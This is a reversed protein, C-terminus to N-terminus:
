EEVKITGAGHYSHYEADYMAEASVPGMVFSGKSVARVIYYVNVINPKNNFTPADVVMLVRDDRIDLTRPRAADKIWDLGPVASIRPNEVEFGAPLLDTLIINEIYRNTLNELEMKVVILDNQKFRNTTLRNGSRDYFYKRVKIYQDEEIYSGDVSVGETEWFYYVDGEGETQVEITVEEGRNTQYSLPAERFEKWLKGNILVEASLNGALSKQAMKGLTLLSFVREQTNLYRSEELAKSIHRAMIGIQDNNPDVELLTYLALAEDRLPSSFSGGFEKVSRPMDFQEPAIAKYTRQDGALAYAAALLYKGDETMDSSRSQYYNMTALQPKGVASLVFLSYPVSKPIINRRLVQDGKYYSFSVMEVEKLREILRQYALTLMRDPVDYGAKKAEALFHTAYVSGWWSEQGEGPWYTFGGNYLQMLKLRNIALIVNNRPNPDEQTQQLAVQTFAPFYLQPFAASVTQEVCGYNARILYSFDESFEVLPSKSLKFSQVIHQSMFNRTDLPITEKTGGSITGSGTRKQLPSAPRVTIDTTQTFTEGLASVSTAIKAQGICCETAIDYTVRSETSAAVEVSSKANGLIQLPGELSVTASGNAAKQTTNTVVVPMNLTDGPSLFRPIGSSIVIPDAVVINKETSSFANARYAIAMVRLSGSFSPIDIAFNVKGQANARQIGSWFSALKVRKNVLPNIRAGLGMGGGGPKSLPLAIEPFLYPYMDYSNVELARKAYFFDHPQPTQYNTLQLIGEDVVAIAVSANPQTNVVIEQSTKSRSESAVQIDIPLVTAADKVLMPAFGHAVTLPIDSPANPRFLVASVYVNPVMDRTVKLSFSASRGDTNVYFHDQVEDSEITVLIKGDFPAKMLVQAKDGIDYIDKDLTIDIQGENNVKFANRSTGGYGYVYFKTNVYYNSEAASVRFEYEGNLSPTYQFVFNEGDLTVEKEQIVKTVKESTYRYYRGSRNLNTKYEYKILKVKAKVNRQLTGEKDVAIVPIQIPRNSRHYYGPSQLGYFIEQTYVPISKRRSVPRGTEDFVTILFDAQIKGTNAYEAPITFAEEIQGNADTKGDRQVESYRDPLNQLSFQYAPYDEAYFSLGRTSFDIEYNRNAAPPGFFNQAFAKITVNEGASLEEKDASLDVKIRDPMFEEVLVDMDSLTIGEANTLRIYYNGTPAEPPLEVSAELDGQASLTKKIRVFDQGDPTDVTLLLPQSAPVSWNKGRIIAALHITEGPRYIDREGYLYAQYGTANSRLGGVDFRYSSVSTRDFPLYTFDSGSSATIMQINFGSAPLEEWQYTAVGEQNTTVTALEQNNKGILSINIGSMAEAKRISNAFITISKRGLKSILGIDSFCIVKHSRKYPKQSSIELVYIGGYNSLKQEVNLDLLRHQDKRTLSNTAYTAEWVIDGLQTSQYYAYSPEYYRYSGSHDDEYYDYYYDSQTIFSMINNPYIKILKATFEPVNIVDLAIHQNGATSLYVAKRDPFALRPQLEGFAIDQEVENNLEGGLVGRLHEKLKVEYTTGVQFEESVISFSQDKIQIQYNVKPTISIFQRINEEKLKQSSPFNINGQFGDHEAAATGINLVFPSSIVLNDTLSKRTGMSGNAPIIGESLDLIIEVDEKSIRQDKVLISVNKMSEQSILEWDASRQNLTVTLHDQLESTNVAYNFSLDIHLDYTNKSVSQTAWYAHANMLSLTPTHVSFSRDGEWNFEKTLNILVDTFKGQYATAPPLERLPTFVLEDTSKWSFRGPIDPTFNIYTQSDVKALMDDSVLSRSFTFVLQGQTPVEEVFNTDVLEITGEKKQCAICLLLLSIPFIIRFKM